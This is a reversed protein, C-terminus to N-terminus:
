SNWNLITGFICVGSAFGKDCASPRRSASPRLFRVFLKGKRNISSRPRFTYGLFDFSREPCDDRRNADQCYIVKTKQTHLQLGCEAFRQELARRLKQAQAESRCRCIADDAYREFPIDPHERQMWCDFAYHLFLNALVPSIVSGQPIGRERSVLTGDPMSMPAKLWREIYLLAWKYDTHQRVARM